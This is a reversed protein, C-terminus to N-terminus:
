PSKKKSATAVAGAKGKATGKKKVAPKVAPLEGHEMTFMFPQPTYSTLVGTIKTPSNATPQHLMPKEMVVHVDAKSAAQNEDTIAADVSDKTSSIVKVPIELRAEGNKQMAQIAAWVKDAADKNAPSADRYQLIFEQDSLSLKEPPNQQVAQVALEAPTPAPKVTFAAPLSIQTAVDAAMKDWGDEGGHFRRYKAKCYAAMKAADANNSGQDQSLAKQCYWFGNVDIPSLELDAVALLYVDQLNSSDLQVAKNLAERAAAYNKAQFACFGAFGTFIDTMRKRLEDFEPATMGEPKDWSPLQQLGTKSYACGESLSAQDGKSRDLAVVISTARVDQPKLQLIHRASDEVKQANKANQYAAMAQELADIVVISQPYQQVFAEMLAGRKAPDAENLAIMYADYEAKDKIVKQSVSTDQAESAEIPQSGLAFSAAILVLVFVRVNNM